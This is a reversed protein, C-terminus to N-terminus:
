RRGAWGGGSGRAAGSFHGGGLDMLFAGLWASGTGTTYLREEGTSRCRVRLWGGFGGFVDPLVPVTDEALEFDSAAFGKACLVSSLSQAARPAESPPPLQSM